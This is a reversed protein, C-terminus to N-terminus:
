FGMLGCCRGCIPLLKRRALVKRFKRYRPGNFIKPLSEEQINGCTYDPYDRCTSVDGNPGIETVYWPSVCRDYGFTHAPDTFYREIQDEHLNPVFLYPIRFRSARVKRVEEILGATDMSIADSVYGKWAIPTVNFHKQMFRTHVCGIQETTFWSYYIGAFDPGLEEAVHLTEAIRTYNSTTVTMLLVVVPLAKNKRQRERRIAKIASSMKDFTGPVGRIEDHLERKGDLSIMICDLGMGVIEAAHRELLTGNTILSVTQRRAKMYRLVEMIHPYMMPEGGWIYYLPRMRMCDDVMRKYCEFPVVERLEQTPRGFNYGSEGWQACMRCRLNCMNTIKMDIQKISSAHYDHGWARELPATVFKRFTGEAMGKLLEPSQMAVKAFYSIPLNM